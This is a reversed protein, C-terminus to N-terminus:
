AFPALLKRLAFGAAARLRRLPCTVLPLGAAFDEALGADLGVDLGADLGVDLRAGTVLGLELVPVLGPALFSVRVSARERRLGARVADM